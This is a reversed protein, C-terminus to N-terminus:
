FLDEMEGLLKKAKRQECRNEPAADPASNPDRNLNEMLLRKFLDEDAEKVAYEEAMLTRTGFYNPQIAMSTEFHEKSRTMDGGAFGPAVAYFIGFYRDPAQYFFTPYEDLCFQMVDRIEDKFSLLTAFSEMRAWRGLNSARWYLAPVAEKSLTDLTQEIRSGDQMKKAFAPSMAVLAREAAQIGDQHTKKAADDNGQDLKLHCDGHFYLARSLKTWADPNSPDIDLAQQWKAIASAAKAPDDRQIWDQDADKLLQQGKARVEETLQKSQHAAWDGEHSSSCASLLVAMSAVATLSSLLRIKVLKM